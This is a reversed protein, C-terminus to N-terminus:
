TCTNHSHELTKGKQLCTKSKIPWYKFHSKGQECFLSHGRPSLSTRGCSSLDIILRNFLLKQANMDLSLIFSLKIHAVYYRSVAQCIFIVWCCPLIKFETVLRFQM